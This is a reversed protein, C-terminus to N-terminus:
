HERKIKHPYFDRYSLNSKWFSRALSYTGDKSLENNFYNENIELEQENFNVYVLGCFSVYILTYILRKFWHPSPIDTLLFRESRRVILFTIILLALLYAAFLYNQSINGALERMDILYEVALFNFASSFKDWFVLSMTEEFLSLFVFFSYAAITVCRDFKSNVYKQPLLFLYLVYPLMMFIFSIVTTKLLVGITKIMPIVSWDVHEREALLLLSLTLFEIIISVAFFPALRRLLFSNM